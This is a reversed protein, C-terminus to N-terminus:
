YCLRCTECLIRGTGQSAIISESKERTYGRSEMLGASYPDEADTHIYWVNDCFEEYHEELLLAAEVVLM